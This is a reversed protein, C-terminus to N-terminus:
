AMLAHSNFVMPKANFRQYLARHNTGQSESDISLIKTLADAMMCNAAFMSVVRGHKMSQRTKPYIIPNKGSEYYSASTALATDRMDVQFLRTHRRNQRILVPKKQWLKTRLDGGANVTLDVCEGECLSFARDVAYGKAIGGLDIMLPKRFRVRGKTVVVDDWAARHDPRIGLDPLLGQAILDPAVTIDFLGDSQRSIEAAQVLVEEMAPSLVCAYRYAHRNIYTLESTPRHFSMAQDISQIAAFARNSLAVLDADSRRATMSIEVYTGLLPKCRLISNLKMLAM